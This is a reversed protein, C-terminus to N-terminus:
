EAFWDFLYHPEADRADVKSFAEIINSIGLTILCGALLMGLSFTFLSANFLMLVGFLLGLIHLVLIAASAAKGAFHRTFDYGIIHALSHGIFWIPFIFNLIWIGIRPNFLLLLGSVAGMVGTILAVTAELGTCRRLKVYLIVNTIGSITIISGVFAVLGSLALRPSLLTILGVIFFLIGKLLGVRGFASRRNM